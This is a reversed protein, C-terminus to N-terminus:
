ADSLNYSMGTRDDRSLPQGPYFEIVTGGAKATKELAEYASFHNFTFSECGARFPADTAGLCLVAGILALSEVIFDYKKM